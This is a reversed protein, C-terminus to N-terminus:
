VYTYMYGRGISGGEWKTLNSLATWEKLPKSFQKRVLATEKGSTDRTGHPGRIVTSLNSHQRDGAGGRFMVADTGTCAYM